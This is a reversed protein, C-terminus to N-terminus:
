TPQLAKKITQLWYDNFDKCPDKIFYPTLNKVKDPYKTTIKAATENGKPDNDLLLYIQKYDTLKNLISSVNSCSNLVIINFQEAQQDTAAMYEVWSLFDFLGEFIIVRDSNNNITTVGGKGYNIKSFNSKTDNRMAYGGFDNKFALYYYKSNKWCELLYRKATAAGIGRKNAYEILNKNQLPKFIFNETPKQKVTNPPANHYHETITNNTIINFAKDFNCNELRMVFKVLSIREDTGSDYYLKRDTFIVASPNTDVRFPSKLRIGKACPFYKIGKGQLYNEINFKNVATDIITQPIM